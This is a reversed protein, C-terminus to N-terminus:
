ELAGSLSRPACKGEHFCLNCDKMGGKMGNATASLMLLQVRLNVVQGM